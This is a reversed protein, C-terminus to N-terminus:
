FGSSCMMIPVKDRHGIIPVLQRLWNRQNWLLVVPLSQNWSSVM